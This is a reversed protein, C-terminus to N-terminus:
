LMKKERSQCTFLLIQRKQGLEQLLQMAARLRDDDFRVLADDLVLPVDPLLAEAVALRLSLYLQDATGDSRWQATRLTEEDKAGAQLTFDQELRLRDYRRGTLRGFLEGARASIRPAFRRQLQQTAEQLTQQALELAELTEQLRAIRADLQQLDRELQVRSGLQEMKGQCQGLQLQLKHREQAADSLLRATEDQSYTLTDPQRAPEARRAMSKLTQLHNQASKLSRRADDLADWQRQVQLWSQLAHQIGRDGCLLQTQQKLASAREDLDGRAQQNQLQRLRKEELQRAYRGADAEWKDPSLGPHRDFIAIQAKYRKGSLIWGILLVLVMSGALIGGALIYIMPEWLRYFFWSAALTGCGLLGLIAFILVFRSWNKKKKELAAFSERDRQAQAVAAEGTMDRYHAPVEWATEQRPLMQAEMQLSEWQEQLARLKATMKQAEERSPLNECSQALGQAQQVQQRFAEEEDYLVQEDAKAAEYRLADQHNELKQTFQELANKRQLLQHNQNQLAQLLQAKEQLAQRQTEAQPLLGTRNYRISNKLDRLKKDLLQATASEDGTTVLANLRHRLAEDQTVPLDTLRVFGSRLFVSKEVGLLLQGCNAATLEPVEVGTKTEFAAFEGFPLRGKSRRQITIDRGNWCIDMSGAMPSGSWPAYREKDALAAKTTHTRTAIGYLMATLFACWTSKGWENPAELINLGPQLTLTQKELKGFTATM